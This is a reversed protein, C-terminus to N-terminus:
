FDQPPEVLRRARMGRIRLQLPPGNTAYEAIALGGGASRDPPLEFKNVVKQGRLFVSVKGDWLVIRLANTEKFGVEKSVWIDEAMFGRRIALRRSPGILRLTVAELSGDDGAPHCLMVVLREWPKQPTPRGVIDFEATFEVDRGVETECLLKFLGAGRSTGVLTGDADVQWAGGVTRWGALDAGPQLDVWEMDALAAAKELMVVRGAVLRRAAPHLDTADALERFAKLAPEDRGDDVLREAAVFARAHPGGFLRCEGIVLDARTRFAELPKPGPDDGLEDLIPCADAYQRAAWYIVALWAKWQRAREPKSAAIYGTCVKVCDDLVDPDALADRRDPLDDGITLVADLFVGPVETDFRGSDLCERGFELMAEHSGGWRPRLIDHVMLKYPSMYDFQAAVARDFWLRGENSGDGLSVSIMCLAAEPYEPHMEHARTLHERAVALHEALGEWGEPKVDAAWGTGRAAWAKSLAAQGLVLTTIWPDVGSEPKAFREAAYALFAPGSPMFSSTYVRQNGAGFDKDSAAEAAFQFLPTDPNPPIMTPDTEARAVRSWPLALLAYFVPYDALAAEPLQERILDLAQRHRGRALEIRGRFMGFVPDDCGAAVLEAALAELETVDAFKDAMAAAFAVHFEGLKGAWPADAKGHARFDSQFKRELWERVQRTIDAQTTPEARLDAPSALLMLAAGVARIACAIHRGGARPTRGGVMRTVTLDATPV